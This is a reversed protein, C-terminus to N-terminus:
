RLELVTEGVTLHDGVGLPVAGGVAAGNVLTGNTSGLDEVYWRGEHLFVRAHVKSVHTDDISIRCGTARGITTEADLSYATGALSAPDVAVLVPGSRAGAPQTGSPAPTPAAGMGAMAPVPAATTRVRAGGKLEVWVARLVRLFVLYMLVLLCVRLVVLLQDSM